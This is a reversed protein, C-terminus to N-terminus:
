TVGEEQSDSARPGRCDRHRALWAAHLRRLDMRFTERGVAISGGCRCTEAYAPRDDMATKM